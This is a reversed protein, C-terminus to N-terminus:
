KEYKINIENKKSDKVIENCVDELKININNSQFWNNIKIVMKKDYNELKDHKESQFNCLHMFLICDLQQQGMITNCEELKNLFFLPINEIEFSKNIQICNIVKSIINKDVIFNKCVIYRESLYINGSNPKLVIIKKFLLSMLYIINLSINSHTNELKIILNGDKKLIKSIITLLEHIDEYNYIIKNFVFDSYKKNEVYKYHTLNNINFIHTYKILYYILNNNNYLVVSSNNSFLNVITNIEILNYFFIEINENIKENLYPYMLTYKIAHDINQHELLYNYCQNVYYKLTVSMNKNSNYKIININSNKFSPLTYYSM